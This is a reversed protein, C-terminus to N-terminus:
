SLIPEVWSSGDRNLQFITSPVNLILDFLVFGCRKNEALIVFVCLLIVLFSFLHYYFFNVCLSQFNHEKTQSIQVMIFWKAIRLISISQDLQNSVSIGNPMLHVHLHM